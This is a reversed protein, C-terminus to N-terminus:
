RFVLSPSSSPVPAPPPSAGGGSFLSIKVGCICVGGAPLLSINDPAEINVPFVGVANLDNVVDAYTGRIRLLCLMDLLVTALYSEKRHSVLTPTVQGILCAAENAASARPGALGVGTEYHDCIWVAIRRLWNNLEIPDRRHMLLIAPILSVAWKDSPPHSAGPQDKVLRRVVEAAGKRRGEPAGPDIALLGFLELLKFCRVPYPVRVAGSGQSHVFDLVNTLPLAEAEELM